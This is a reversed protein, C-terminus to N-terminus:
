LILTKIKEPIEKGRCKITVAIPKFEGRGYFLTVIECSKPYIDCYYEETNKFKTFTARHPLKKEEIEVLIEVGHIISNSNNCVKVRHAFVDIYEEIGREWTIKKDPGNYKGNDYIIELNKNTIFEYVKICGLINWPIAGVVFIVIPISYAIDIDRFFTIISMIVGSLLACISTWKYRIFGSIIQSLFGNIIDRM